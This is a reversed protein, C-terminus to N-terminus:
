EPAGEAALDDKFKEDWEDYGLTDSVLDALDQAHILIADYLERANGDANIDTKESVFESAAGIARRATLILGILELKEAKTLKMKGEKQAIFVGHRM